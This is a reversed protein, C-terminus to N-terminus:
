EDVDVMDRLKAEWCANDVALWVELYDGFFAYGGLAVGVSDAAADALESCDDSSKYINANVMTVTAFVFVIGLIIKKM